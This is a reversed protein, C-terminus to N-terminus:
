LVAGSDPQEIILDERGLSILIARVDERLTGYDPVESYKKKGKIILSAYVQAM